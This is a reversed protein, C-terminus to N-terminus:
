SVVGAAYLLGSRECKRMIVQWRGALKQTSVDTRGNEQAADSTSGADKIQKM